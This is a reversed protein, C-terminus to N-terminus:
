NVLSMGEQIGRGRHLKPCSHSIKDSFVTTLITWFSDLYLSAHHFILIFSRKKERYSFLDGKFM